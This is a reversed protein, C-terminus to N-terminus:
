RAFRGSPGRDQAQTAQAQRPVTGFPSVAIQPARPFAARATGAKCTTRGSRVKPGQPGETM